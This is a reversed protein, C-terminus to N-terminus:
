REVCRQSFCDIGYLFTIRNGADSLTVTQRGSRQGIAVTKAPGLVNIGALLEPNGTGDDASSGCCGLRGVKWGSDLGGDIGGLNPRPAPPVDDDVVTGYVRARNLSHVPIVAFDAVHLIAERVMKHDAVAAAHSFAFNCYPVSPFLLEVAAMKGCFGQVMDGNSNAQDSVEVFM